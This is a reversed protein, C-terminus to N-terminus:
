AGSCACLSGGACDRVRSDRRAPASSRHGTPPGGTIRRRRSIPDADRGNGSGYALYVVLAFVALLGTMSAATRIM